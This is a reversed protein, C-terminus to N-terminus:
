TRDLSYDTFGHKYCDTPKEYSDAFHRGDSSTLWVAIQHDTWHNIDRLYSEVFEDLAFRRNSNGIYGHVCIQHDEESTNENLYDQLAKQDFVKTSLGGRHHEKSVDMSCGSTFVYGQLARVKREVEEESAKHKDEVEKFDAPTDGFGLSKYHDVKSDLNAHKM